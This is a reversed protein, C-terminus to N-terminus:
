DFMLLCLFVSSKQRVNGCLLVGKHLMWAPGRWCIVSTLYKQFRFTVLWWRGWGGVSVVALGSLVKFGCGSVNEKSEMTIATAYGVRVLTSCPRGRPLVVVEWRRENLLGSPAFHPRKLHLSSLYCLSLSLTCHLCLIVHEHPTRKVLLVFCM